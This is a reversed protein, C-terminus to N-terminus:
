FKPGGKRRPACFRKKVAELVCVRYGAEALFLGSSIGTFGGGVVCVDTEVCGQLVPREPASHATAAYYIDPHNTLMPRM